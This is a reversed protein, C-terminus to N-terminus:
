RLSLLSSDGYSLFRFDNRLAYDYITRWHEQGVFAAILLLLTSKPQHFNTIMRGVVRFKFGPAIMLQTSAYLTLLRRRSLYDVICQLAEETSLTGANAYPEWQDVSLQPAEPHTAIHCGLFYLSELTRVSTTGVAVVRGYQKKIDEITRKNVAIAETHMRHDGILESKVPQFTGAGVHLTVEDEHVGNLALRRLVDRTFHLGATPAAVSGEIKSYVTQYTIKDSAEAARNLYPPIPIEGYAELIQAFTIEDSDWEFRICQSLGDTSDVRIARLCVNIRGFDLSRELAGEKWKKSNGVMCHWLVSGTSEFARQYDTDYPELCFLEVVAGTDKQFFLRAQVVKTNNYILLDGNHLLDPLDCFHATTPTHGDWVLLKSADRQPLPYRAIRADPLAYDYDAIQINRPNQM